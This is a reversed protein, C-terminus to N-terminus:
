DGFNVLRVLQIDAVKALADLVGNTLPQDV